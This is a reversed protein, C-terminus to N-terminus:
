KKEFEAWFEDFNDFQTIECIALEDDTHHDDVLSHNIDNIEASAISSFAPESDKELYFATQDDFTEKANSSKPISGESSSTLTETQTFKRKKSIIDTSAPTYLLSSPSPIKLGRLLHKNLKEKDIVTEKNQEPKLTHVFFPVSRQEQDIVFLSETSALVTSKLAEIQLKPQELNKSEDCLVSQRLQDVKTQETKKLTELQELLSVPAKYDLPISSQVTQPNFPAYPLQFNQQQFVLSNFSYM